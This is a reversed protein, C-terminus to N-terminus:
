EQSDKSTDTPHAYPVFVVEFNPEAAKAERYFKSFEPTFRHCPPCWHASFYLCVLGNACLQDRKMGNSHFASPGIIHSARSHWPPLPKELAVENAGHHRAGEM